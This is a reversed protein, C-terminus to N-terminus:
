CIINHSTNKLENRLEVKTGAMSLLVWMSTQSQLAM